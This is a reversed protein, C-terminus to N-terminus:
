PVGTLDAHKSQRLDPGDSAQALCFDVLKLRLTSKRHTNLQGRLGNGPDLRIHLRPKRRADFRIHRQNFSSDFFEDAMKIPMCHSSM